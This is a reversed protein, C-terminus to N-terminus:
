FKARLEVVRGIITVPKNGIENDTYYTPPYMPNLAILSVGGEDHKVIRKITADCGNVLVIGIDGSEVDQQKRVIVVDGESFKPEMSDGKVKLAFHDGKSAFIESIEEYDLIDEVAEIPLGAQVRGLVPIRTRRTIPEVVDDWGMLYSIDADLALAFDKLKETGLSKINGDEYKKITTEHLDVKKGLDVRSMGKAKRLSYIKEGVKKNFDDM